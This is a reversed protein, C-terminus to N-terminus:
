ERTKKFLVILTISHIAEVSLIGLIAGWIGYIPLLIALFIIKSLSYVLNMVYLSKMKIHAAFTQSLFMKPFFILSLVAIQSYTIADMYQPFFLKYAYPAIWIYLLVIVMIVLFFRVTKGPISRRLEPFTRQSLKPLTLTTINKLVSEIQQMPLLAFTYVALQMGGLFHFLLIKDLQGAIKSIVGMASLHIGYSMTRPDEKRNPKFRSKTIAYFAYNIITRSVFYAAVLWFLNNTVFLVAISAADAIVQAITSYKMQINFIKKGSLFSVYIGSALMLPLFAASILLPIPLLFNGQFFYYVAGAIGTLSGIMGWKMKTKFAAYFSGELGRAVAQTVATGMGALAFIGLIEMISIVYKYNGYVTPDLLNAFAIASLLGTVTSIIQGVTLWFGGKALYIMDTQTYKQSWILFDYIRNKINNIM